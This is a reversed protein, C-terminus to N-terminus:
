IAPAPLPLFNAELRHFIDFMEKEYGPILWSQAKKMHKKVTKFHLLKVMEVEEKELTIQSMDTDWVCYFIGRFEKFKEDKYIKLLQLHQAEIPLGTEERVERAAGTFYNDGPSLHGSVTAEWFGPSMDKHRSRKQCLLKKKTNVVWVQATRKYLGREFAVSRTVPEIPTDHEDVIFLLEDSNVM